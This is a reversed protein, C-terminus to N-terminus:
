RPRSPSRARPRRAAGTEDLGFTAPWRAGCGPCRTPAGGWVQRARLVALVLNVRAEGAPAGGLIHLGDRIQVDKVECLYGDVHLVFDDFEAEDPRRTRRAPRPAAAAAQILTGSRRGCRRAAQGPRAGRGHAYEDLLQELKALDGYTDARAMPPVLHDVVTAHAAGSPRPARAPTTSSSRTSWRCTASCRTPRAAPPCASARARCGSWRATSAWTCSPTARRVGDADLWRYAALYHHSPPLDPDHYIAVPNEGFGRPPQIMLVVNGFRLGALM